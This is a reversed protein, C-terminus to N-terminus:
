QKNKIYLIGKMNGFEVWSRGFEGDAEGYCFYGNQLIAFPTIM